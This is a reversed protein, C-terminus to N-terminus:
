GGPNGRPQLESPGSQIGQQFAGGVCRKKKQLASSSCAKQQGHHEHGLTPATTSMGWRPRQPTGARVLTTLASFFFFFALRLFSYNWRLPPQAAAQLEFTCCGSRATACAPQSSAASGLPL